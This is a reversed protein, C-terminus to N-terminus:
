HLTIFFSIKAITVASIGRAGTFADTALANLVVQLHTLEGGTGEWLICFGGVVSGKFMKGFQHRSTLDSAQNGRANLGQCISQRPSNSKKPGSINM